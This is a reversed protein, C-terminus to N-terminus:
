VPLWKKEQQHYQKIVRAPNGVVVSYPSVNKTVVAGAGVIAHKGITVGATVVANAGIWVNDEIHIAKCDVDQQSPPLAIDEYKHNLGSVVIHQALMVNNGINVPGIIVCGIGIITQDGITLDGVGNNIVSFDEVISQSGLSFKNYPFIDVRAMRRIIAGKGKQHVFPNLFIRMWSRPKPDQKPRMMWTTAKKLFASSKIKDKLPM